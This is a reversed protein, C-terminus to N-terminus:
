KTQNKPQNDLLYGSISTEEVDHFFDSCFYVSSFRVLAAFPFPFHFFELPAPVLAALVLKFEFDLPLDSSSFSISNVKLVLASAATNLLGFNYQDVM